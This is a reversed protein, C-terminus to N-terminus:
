PRYVLPTGTQPNVQVTVYNKPLQSDGANGSSVVSLYFDNMGIAPIVTGGPRIQFSVFDKGDTNGGSPMQQVKVSALAKSLVATNGAISTNQPLQSLGGLPKTQGAGDNSWLQIAQYGEGSDNMRILRVEVVVNRASAMQRALNIQDVLMGGARSLNSSAMLSSMAPVSVALLIGVTAMVALLEVLSFGFRRMLKRREM